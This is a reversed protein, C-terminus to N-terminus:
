IPVDFYIVHGLICQSLMRINTKLMLTMCSTCRRVYELAITICKAFNTKCARLSVYIGYGTMKCGELEQEKEGDEITPDGINGATDHNSLTLWSM